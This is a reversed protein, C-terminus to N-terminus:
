SWICFTRLLQENRRNMAWQLSTKEAAGAAEVLALLLVRNPTIRSKWSIEDGVASTKFSGCGQGRGLM